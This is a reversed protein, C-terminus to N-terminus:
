SRMGKREEEKGRGWDWEGDLLQKRANAQAKAAESYSIGCTPCRTNYDVICAELDATRDYYLTAQGNEYTRADPTIGRLNLYTILGLEGTPIRNPTQSTNKEKM